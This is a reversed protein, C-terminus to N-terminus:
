VLGFVFGLLAGRRMRVGRWAFLLPLLAVFAV